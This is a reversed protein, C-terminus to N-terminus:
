TSTMPISSTNKPLPTMPRPMNRVNQSMVAATYKVCEKTGTPGANAVTGQQCVLPYRRWYPTPPSDLHRFPPTDQAGTRTEGRM